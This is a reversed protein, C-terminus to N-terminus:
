AARTQAGDPEFSGTIAFRLHAGIDVANDGIREFARSVLIMATAWARRDESDGLEIASVFCSRNLEDVVADDDELALTAELDQDRLAGATRRVAQETARGMSHLCDQFDDTGPPPAGAVSLLKAINVCQDGMREIMRSVHLLATILRLDSAVPAQRAIVTVLDSQLARYRRDVEEDGAIVADAAALDARQLADVVLALQRGVVELQEVVDGQLRQLEEQYPLRAM